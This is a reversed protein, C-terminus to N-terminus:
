LAGAGFAREVMCLQDLSGFVSSGFIAVCIVRQSGLVTLPSEDSLPPLCLLLVTEEFQDLRGWPQRDQLRCRAEALSREGHWSFVLGRPLSFLPAAAFLAEADATKRRVPTSDGGREHM